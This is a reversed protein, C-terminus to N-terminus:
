LVITATANSNIVLVNTTSAHWLWADSAYRLCRSFTVPVYCDETDTHYQQRFFRDDSNCDSKPLGLRRCKIIFDAQRYSIKLNSCTISDM